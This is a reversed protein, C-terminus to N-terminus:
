PFLQPVTSFSWSLGGSFGEGFHANRGSVFKLFTFNASISDTLNLGVGTYGLFYLGIAYLFPIATIWRAPGCSVPRFIGPKERSM